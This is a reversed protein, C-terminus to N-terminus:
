TTPSSAQRARVRGNSSTVSHNRPDAAEEHAPHQIRPSEPTAPLTQLTPRSGRAKGAGGPPRRPRTAGSAEQHRRPHAQGRSATSRRRIARALHRHRPENAAAAEARRRGSIARGRSKRYSPVEGIPPPWRCGAMGRQRITFRLRACEIATSLSGVELGTRDGAAGILLLWYPAEHNSKM